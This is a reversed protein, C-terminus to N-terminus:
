KLEVVTAQWTCNASMIYLYYSGAPENIYTEGPGPDTPSVIPFGGEQTLSHGAQVLYVYCMSFSDGVVNYLLKKQGSGLSFTGTQKDTSGTVDIVTQWTKPAPAVPVTSTQPTTAPTSTAPKSTTETTAPKTTEGKKGAASAAGAIGGVILVAIVIWLWKRSKKEPPPLPANPPINQVM